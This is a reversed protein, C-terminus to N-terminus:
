QYYDQRHSDGLDCHPCQSSLAVKLDLTILSKTVFNQEQPVCVDFLCIVDVVNAELGSNFHNVVRHLFDDCKALLDVILVHEGSNVFIDSLKRYDVPIIECDINERDGVNALLGSWSRRKLYFLKKINKKRYEDILELEMVTRLRSKRVSTISGIDFHIGCCYGDGFERHGKRLLGLLGNAVDDVNVDHHGFDVKVIAKKVESLNLSKGTKLSFIIAKVKNKLARFKVIRNRKRIWELLRRGYIILFILGAIASIITGILVVYFLVGNADVNESSPQSNPDSANGEIYYVVPICLLDRILRARPVCGVRISQVM